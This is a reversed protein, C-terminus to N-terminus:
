SRKRARSQTSRRRASNQFPADVDVDEHNKEADRKSPVDSRRRKGKGDRAGGSRASSPPSPSPESVAGCRPPPPPMAAANKAASVRRRGTKADDQSASARMQEPARASAPLQSCYANKMRHSALVGRYTKVLARMREDVRLERRTVPAKCLPCRKKHQISSTICTACFYHDCRTVMADDYAAMCIRCQLERGIRDMHIEFDGDESEGYAPPAPAAMGAAMGAAVRASSHSREFFLAHPSGVVTKRARVGLIDNPPSESEDRANECEGERSLCAARSSASWKRGTQRVDGAHGKEGRASGFAAEAAGPADGGPRKRRKKRCAPWKGPTGRDLWQGAGGACGERRASLVGLLLSRVPRVRELLPAHGVGDGRALGRPLWRGRGSASSVVLIPGPAHSAVSM